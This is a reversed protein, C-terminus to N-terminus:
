AYELGPVAVRVSFIASKEKGEGIEEDTGLYTTMFLTRGDKGGLTCSIAAGDFAIRDTIEGGDLVRLVEGTNYSAIWIAGEADACLGDPQREGMDAFVRRNSLTGDASLDFATIRGVWTENVILTKGDNIIVSGNPFEMQDAIEVITGDPDIRHLHAPVAEAGAWADYGFNGLYIRDQDDVAFDNLPGTAHNSLDSYHSVDGDKIQLLKRDVMSVAILSGDELFGLGAPRDDLKHRHAIGGDETVAYITEGFVDSVWLKGDRWKPAELFRFGDAVPQPAHEQM